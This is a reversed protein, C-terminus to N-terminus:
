VQWPWPPNDWQWPYGSYSHGFNLLPGYIKEIKKVLPKRRKVGENYQALANMDGPHTDLYLNLEVLMFDIEQLQELLKYFEKPLQGSKAKKGYGKKSKPDTLHADYKKKEEM